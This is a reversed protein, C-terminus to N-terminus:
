APLDSGTTYSTQTRIVFARPEKESQRGIPEPLACLVGSFRVSRLVLVTLNFLADPKINCILLSPINQGFHPFSVSAEPFYQWHHPASISAM